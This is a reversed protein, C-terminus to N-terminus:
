PALYPWLQRSSNVLFYLGVLVAALRGTNVAYPGFKALLRAAGAPLMYLSSAAFFALFFLGGYLPSQGNALCRAMAMLLPPCMNFGTLFGLLVPLHAKGAFRVVTSCTRLHLVNAGLGYAIMMLSMLLSAGLALKYGTAGLRSGLLGVLVGITMYAVARGCLFNGVIRWSYWASQRPRIVELGGIVVPLLVPFCAMLCAPGVSMGLMFGEFMTETM